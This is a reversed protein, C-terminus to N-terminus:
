GGPPGTRDATCPASGCPAIVVGPDDADLFRLAQQQAGSWLRPTEHAPTDVAPRNTADSSEFGPDFISVAPGTAPAMTTPLGPVEVPTPGVVTAGAGRLLMWSAVNPVQEDAVAIQWLATRGSLASSWVAPDVPDWWLQTAAYALQRDTPDALGAESVAEEFLTWHTSRELMTSWAGGGVHLVAPPADDGLVGQLVAGEIGGLSIGHYRVTAPDVIGELLPDDLLDGDQVLALLSAVNAVGQMLHDRMVPFTAIDSAVSFPVRIDDTTLGRWTTALVVAGAEDALALMGSPDDDEGFYIDPNAFIGHGFVWVPASGAKAGELSAPVHVLLEAETTGASRPVAGDWAILGKTGLWDTVTYTGRFQRLTRPPVDGGERMEGLDWTTPVASGDVVARLPGTDAQVRFGTALVVDDEGLDSLRDVLTRLAPGVAPSGAVEAGDIVDDFWPFSLPDGATDRVGSTLVVAVEHGDPMPQLPRVLLAAPGDQEFADLEAMVPLREGATLDILRVPGDDAMQAWGPLTEPDVPATMPLVTTQVVSLGTRAPVPAQWPTAAHPLDAPLVLTDGAILDPTPFPLRAVEADGSDDVDQTQGRCGLNLAFLATLLSLGMMQHRSTPKRLAIM